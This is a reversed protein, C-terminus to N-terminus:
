FTLNNVINNVQEDLFQRFEGVKIQLEEKTM